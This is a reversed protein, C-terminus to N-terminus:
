GVPRLHARRATDAAADPASSVPRPDLSALQGSELHWVRDARAAIAPNHTVMVVTGAFAEVARVLAQGAAGDLNADAEDLLLVRPRALLARALCVKAAEGTSLGGGNESVRTDIGDPLRDILDDLGVLSLVADIDERPPKGAGYTLNLRLSGRMLPLSPSVLAFARRVTARSGTAIDEGDLLVKGTEPHIIGAIVQLLTSKGAGNPGMLAIREGPEVMMSASTLVGKLSADVLEIRGPGDALARKRGSQAQRRLPKLDLLEQQKQRAIVAGNWYEYVRGLDQLRPALLGAVVMAAVVAGPTAQGMAVQVAGVFLASMGAIAASAESLARLLGVVRAQTILAGRLSQSLKGFRNRERQQQGFAEIVAINSVRDNLTAALRGRRRRAERTVSRLRPGITLALGTAVFVAVSVAIAVVPEVFGLAVIALLAALGSVTLRALGLSVWLRLATLDGVFRLVVAGRSMQRAGDAGIRSLHRFLTMRVSHVYSQGLQEGDVHGRWRLWAGFGITAILGGAFLAATEVMQGSPVAGADTVLTDFGARVLLATAVAVGAQAVGNAVLYAFRVRRAGTLIRPLPMEPVTEASGRRDARTSKTQTLVQGTSRGPRRNM